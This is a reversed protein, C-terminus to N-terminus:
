QKIEMFRHFKNHAGNNPFLMLNELKNDTKIGNIHHVVEEKTLYRGIHKEMVLRHKRIYGKTNSFPHEKFLVYVYGSIKDIFTGGKWLHSKEGFKNIKQEKTMIKGTNWPKNNKKFCSTSLKLEGLKYKRKLNESIFRKQEETRKKGKNALGIKKKHEETLKKTRIYIGTPM